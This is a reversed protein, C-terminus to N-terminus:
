TGSVNAMAPAAPPEWHTTHDNHNQSRLRVAVRSCM